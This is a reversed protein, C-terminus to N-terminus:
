KLSDAGHIKYRKVLNEADELSTINGAETTIATGTSYIRPGVLDGVSVLEGQAFVTNSEISPDRATTVGYALNEAYSCEENMMERRETKLHSHIDVLGPVITKGSVDIVKAGAPAPISGSAGIVKIRNNEILIDGQAIVEEGKM